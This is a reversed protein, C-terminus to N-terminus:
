DCGDRQGAFVPVPAGSAPAVGSVTVSLREEGATVRLRIPPGAEARYDIEASRGVAGGVATIKRASRVFAVRDSGGLMLRTWGAQDLLPTPHIAGPPTQMPIPDPAAVAPVAAADPDRVSARALLARRGDRALWLQLRQDPDDGVRAIEGRLWGPREPDPLLRLLATGRGDAQGAVHRIWCGRALDVADADVTARAAPMAATVGSAACAFAAAFLCPVAISALAFPRPM